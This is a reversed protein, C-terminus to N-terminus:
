HVTVHNTARMTLIMPSRGGFNNNMNQHTCLCYQATIQHRGKETNNCGGGGGGGRIFRLWQKDSRKSITSKYVWGLDAM